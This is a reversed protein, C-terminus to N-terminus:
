KHDAWHWWVWTAVFGALGTTVPILYSLTTLPFLSDGSGALQLAPIAWPLYKAFPTPGAILALMMTMFSYVIPMLYGRSLSTLFIVPGCLLLQMVVTIILQIYYHLVLSESFGSLGTLSGILLSFLFAAEAMILCWALSILTKAAIVKGRSVPLALLDKLTRDTYERGFSWSTLVAFGVIGLVSAFMFVVNGLYTNWDADGARIVCVFIYFALSGWLVYSRYLKKNEVMMVTFLERM